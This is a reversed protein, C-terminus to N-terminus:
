TFRNLNHHFDIFIDLFIKHYKLYLLIVESFNLLVNHNLIQYYIKLNHCFHDLYLPLKLQNQLTYFKFM